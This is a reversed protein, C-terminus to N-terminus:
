SKDRSFKGASRFINNYIYRYTSCMNIYKYVLFYLLMICWRPLCKSPFVRLTRLVTMGREPAAFGAVSGTTHLVTPDYERAGGGGGLLLKEVRLTMASLYLIIREKNRICLALASDQIYHVPIWIIIMYMRM